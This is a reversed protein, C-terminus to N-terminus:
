RQRYQRQLELHEELTRSFAHTGDGRAVFYLYDVAAPRLVATISAKGPSCIPGPPLGPYRYTNYPSDVELDARSLRGGARGLAYLVTPCADLKMGRRLRNIYVAAVISREQSVKVEKEVISALTVLGHLGWPFSQIERALDGSLVVEQFRDLMVRVIDEAGVGGAPLFYTDPFLYGELFYRINARAAPLFRYKDRWRPDRAAQLFDDAPCFGEAEVLQAIQEVGFGEPVTLRRFTAPGRVLEQLLQYPSQGARLLYRGSRLKHDVGRAWALLRFAIGSRVLGEEALILAIDEATAGAPVDVVRVGLSRPPAFLWHLELALAMLVVLAIAWLVTRGESRSELVV